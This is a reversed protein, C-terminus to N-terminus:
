LALGVPRRRTRSGTAVVKSSPDCVMRASMLRLESRRWARGWPWARPRRRCISLLPHGASSGARVRGPPRTNVHHVAGSMVRGVGAPLGEAGSRSIGDVSNVEPLRLTMEEQGQSWEVLRAQLGELGLIATAGADALIAQLRGMHKANRPPYAPVAVMGALQCAFFACIYDLGPPCLILVRDGAACQAQLRAAVAMARQLLRGYSLREEM